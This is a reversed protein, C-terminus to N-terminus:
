LLGLMRADVRLARRARAFFCGATRLLINNGHAEWVMWTVDRQHVDSSRSGFQGLAPVKRAFRYMGGLIFDMRSYWILHAPRGARYLKAVAAYEGGGCFSGHPIAPQLNWWKGPTSGSFYGVPLDCVALSVARAWVISGASHTIATPMAGCNFLKLLFPSLAVAADEARREADRWFRSWWLSAALYFRVRRFNSSAMAMRSEKSVLLSNWSLLYFDAQRRSGSLGCAKALPVIFDTAAESEDAYDVGHVFIVPKDGALFHDVSDIQQVFEVSTSGGVFLIRFQLLRPNSKMLPLSRLERFVTAFTRM